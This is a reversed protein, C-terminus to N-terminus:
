TSEIVGKNEGEDDGAERWYQIYVVEGFMQTKGFPFPTREAKQGLSFVFSLCYWGNGINRCHYVSFCPSNTRRSYRHVPVAHWSQLTSIRDIYDPWAYARSCSNSHTTLNVPRFDLSRIKIIVSLHLLRNKLPNSANPFGFQLLRRQRLPVTDRACHTHIGVMVGM